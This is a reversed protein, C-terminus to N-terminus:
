EDYTDYTSPAEFDTKRSLNIGVDKFVRTLFRDYSLVRTMSEYCSIMHMMMLYGVHIWRRMLIFDVIFAELYSVEYRHRGRPLLISCIMHHVVRSSVILSHTSPKCRRLGIPAIDLICCISELDLQIEVGRVTSIILGGLGYTARSYFARVLTSFISESITMVPLWGMRSQYDEVISFLTTDFRAKRRTEMQSPQSLESPRKGPLSTRIRNVDQDVTLVTLKEFKTCKRMEHDEEQGKEDKDVKISSSMLTKMTKAEEM